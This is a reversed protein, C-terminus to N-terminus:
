EYEGEAAKRLGAPWATRDDGYLAIAGAEIAANHEDDTCQELSHETLAEPIMRLLVSLCQELALAIAPTTM